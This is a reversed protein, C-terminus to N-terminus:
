RLLEQERYYWAAGPHLPIPTAPARRIDAQRLYDGTVSLQPLIAFLASTLQHVTLDDLDARCLLLVDERVTEVPRDQGPYTGAPITAPRLFPYDMRLRHLTDGRIDLLRAGALLAGRVAAVPDAATIFVADLEGNRLAATADLFPLTEQRVSDAGVGFARLLIASTVATGSGLPGVGVRQGRLDSLSNISSNGAVLVHVTSPHLVAVGRVGRTRRGLEAIHGNYGMYAVDALTLGLEAKGSELYGLNSVSGETEVVDFRMNPLVEKYAEALAEGLPKFTMGPLGTVIRITVPTQPAAAPGACGVSWGAAAAVLAASTLRRLRV